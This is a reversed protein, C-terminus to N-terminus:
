RSSARSSLVTEYVDALADGSARSTFAAARSRGRAILQDRQAGVEDLAGAWADITLPRVLAGDGVVDPICTADSCIVPAGLAMAEILPAGFGEYQSPFVMAAAMALLGNRDAPGVRGVRIVRPDTCAAIDPEAFGESGAFVLRLDPDRWHEAMLQLLFRHNKHPATMAPYFLVPGGGLGLRQRLEAENTKVQLLQPEFGHPVVHVREADIGYAEVITQRVYASPVTIAAAGRVSRPIMADLYARKTRSFYHPFTKYQLDHVTLVYPRRAGIPATGGGHHMLDVDAGARRLWTSEGLIRRLRREGRFPASRLSAHSVLEPYKEAFAELVFLDVSWSRQPGEALGIMQRVLYEESGGVAGPVCWLLNVGVRPASM